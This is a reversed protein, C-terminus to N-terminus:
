LKESLLRRMEAIDQRLLKLDDRIDALEIREVDVEAKIDRLEDHETRIESEAREVLKKEKKLGTLIINEGVFFSVFLGTLLLIVIAVLLSVPGTMLPFLDATHWVGRWFLVIGVGGIFAYILPFKSLRGRARDELHDFFKVIKKM